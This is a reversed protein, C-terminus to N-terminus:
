DDAEMHREHISVRDPILTKGVTKRRIKTHHRYKMKHHCNSSLMGSLYSLIAQYIQEYSINKGKRKIYGSIQQPSWQEERLLKLVKKLIHPNIRQNSNRKVERSFISVSCEITRAIAIYTKKYNWIFQTDKSM